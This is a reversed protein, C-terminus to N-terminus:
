DDKEPVGTVTESGGADISVTKTQKKGLTDWNFTITHNGEQIPLNMIPAVDIFEGNISIKCNSPIAKITIKGMEPGRVVTTEGSKIEVTKTFRIYTDKGARFTLKHTGPELEIPNGKLVKSGSLVVIRGSGSFKLYGPTAVAQLVINVNSNSSHDITQTVDQHGELKLVIEHTKEDAVKLDAPTQGAAQGDMQVTAGPPVSTVHIVKTTPGVPNVPSPTPVNEAELTVNVEAPWASKQLTLVKERYGPLRLTLSLDKRDQITTPTIGIKHGDILVDAGVPNSIIALAEGGKGLTGFFLLTGVFLLAMIAGLIYFKKEQWVSPKQILVQAATESYNAGTGTRPAKEPPPPVGFSPTPATPNPAPISASPNPMNFTEMNQVDAVITAPIEPERKITTKVSTPSPMQDLPLTQTVGEQYTPVPTSATKRRFKLSKLYFLYEELDGSLEKASPYRLDRNKELSRMIIQNLETGTEDPLNQIPSPRVNLIRYMIDVTHEGNFPNNYTFLEYAIVGSSFIDTRPDLQDGSIQEPSMYQLTGIIYGSRTLESTGMRAIGFDMIKVTNDEQLRINAPKIDRHIIGKTHAADLGKAIQLIIEVKQEFTLEVRQKIVAQLDRGVLYEMCIYPRGEYHGLDYITVINPHRLSGALRAEREFRSILETEESGIASLLKIAVDRKVVPDYAHYVIGMAGKGLVSLIQYKDIKEPPQQM